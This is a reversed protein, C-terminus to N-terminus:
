SRSKSRMWPILRRSGSARRALRGRDGAHGQEQPCLRPSGSESIRAEPSSSPMSIAVKVQGPSPNGALRLKGSPRRRLSTEGPARCSQLRSQVRPRYRAESHVESNHVQLLKERARFALGELEFPVQGRGASHDLRDHREGVSGPTREQDTDLISRPRHSAHGLWELGLLTEGAQDAVRDLRSQQRVDLDQGPAVGVQQRDLYKRARRGCWTL